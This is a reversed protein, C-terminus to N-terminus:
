ENEKGIYYNMKTQQTWVGYHFKLKEFIAKLIILIQKNDSELKYKKCQLSILTNMELKSIIFIDKDKKTKYKFVLNLTLEEIIILQTKTDNNFISKLLKKLM